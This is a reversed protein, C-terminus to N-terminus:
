GFRVDAWRVGDPSTLFGGGSGGTTVALYGGWTRRVSHFRPGDQVPEFNRGGDVSRYAPGVDDPAVFLAGDPLVVADGGLTRPPNGNAWWTQTWSRGGDTSQYIAILSRPEWGDPRRGTALAYVASGAATVSVQDAVTGPVVPLPVVSWSAGGDRSSAVSLAGTARDRGSVWWSGDPAPRRSPTPADLPPLDVLWAREGSDPLSVVVRRWSCDSEPPMRELCRTELVADAPIRSVRLDPTTSAVRWSRGADGSYYRDHRGGDALDTLVLRDGGLAVVRGVLKEPAALEPVGFPREAWRVGDETVLLRRECRYDAGDTCRGWLAYGRGAGAFDVDYVVPVTYQGVDAGATPETMRPLETARERAVPEVRLIPVAVGVAVAVLLLGIALQRGTVGSGDEARM